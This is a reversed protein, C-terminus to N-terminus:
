NSAMADSSRGWVQYTEVPLRGTDLTFLRPKLTVQSYLDILVIDEAGFRSALALQNRYNAHGWHLLELADWKEKDM